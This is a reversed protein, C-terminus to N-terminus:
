SMIDNLVHWHVDALNYIIYTNYLEASCYRISTALMDSPYHSM